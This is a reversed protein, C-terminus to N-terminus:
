KEARKKECLELFYRFIPAGDVCDERKMGYCMKEPHWQVGFVPMRKHYFAEVLDQSHAIATLDEALKRIGQHHCSNVSFEEGYLQALFSNKEAQVSHVPYHELDGKHIQVNEIDQWLTGGFFVNLLQFGRCVGMIPKGTKIFERLLAWETEDRCHDIEISGDVSEGYYKPDLDNGGCLILGDYDTNLDPCYSAVAQGGSLEVAQIYHEKNTNVCLLIRCKM